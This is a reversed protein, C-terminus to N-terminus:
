RAKCRLSWCPLLRIRALAVWDVLDGGLRGAAGVWGGLGKVGGWGVGGGGGGVLGRDEQLWSTFEAAKLFYDDASIDSVGPPKPKPPRAQRRRQSPHQQKREGGEKAAAAAKEAAVM